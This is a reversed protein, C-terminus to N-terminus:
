KGKKKAAAARARTTVGGSSSSSGGSRRKGWAEDVLLNVATALFGFFRFGHFALAPRLDVAPAPPPPKGAAGASAAPCIKETAWYHLLIQLDLVAACAALLMLPCRFTPRGGKLVSPLMYVLAPTALVALAASVRVWVPPSSTLCDGTSDVYMRLVRLPLESPYHAKIGDPLAIHLEMLLVSVSHVFITFSTLYNLLM